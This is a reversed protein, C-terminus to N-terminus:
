IGYPDLLSDISVIPMSEALSQAALLRDFPDRHHLPLSEQSLVHPLSISLLAIGNGTLHQSIYQPLPLSLRLKGINIKIAMEWVSAISLWKENQPDEILARALASMQPDGEVFWIVAHTDLLLKM